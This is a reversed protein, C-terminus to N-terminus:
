KETIMKTGYKIIALRQLEAYPVYEYKELSRLFWFAYLFTYDVGRDGRAKVMKGNIQVFSNLDLARIKTWRHIDIYDPQAIPKDGFGNQQAFYVIARRIFDSENEVKLEEFMINRTQDTHRVSSLGNVRSKSKVKLM